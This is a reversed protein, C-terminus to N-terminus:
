VFCKILFLYMYSINRVKTMKMKEYDKWVTMICIHNLDQGLILKFNNSLICSLADINSFNEPPGGSGGNKLLPRGEGMNTPRNLNVNPRKVSKNDEQM